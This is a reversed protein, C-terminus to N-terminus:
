TASAYSFFDQIGELTRKNQKTCKPCKYKLDYTMTPISEFFTTIKAFQQQSLSDLFGLIEEKDHDDSNYIKDKDFICEVCDAVVDFSQSPDIEGDESANESVIKMNPYKLQVGIEDTLMIKPDNGEKVNVKVKTLDMKIQTPEECQQCPINAEVIEGVAKIRIQLFLYELDSMPLTSADLDKVCSNVVDVLAKSVTSNKGDEAAVLLVKEEKVLFPRYNVTKGTCPLTTEYYPVNLTPLAM